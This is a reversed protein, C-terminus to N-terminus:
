YVQIYRKGKYNLRARVDTLERDFEEGRLDATVVRVEENDEYEELLDKLEKVTM